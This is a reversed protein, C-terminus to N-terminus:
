SNSPKYKIAEKEFAEKKNLDKKSFSVPNYKEQLTNEVLKSQPSSEFGIPTGGISEQARGLQMIDIKSPADFHEVSDGGTLYKPGEQNGESSNYKFPDDEKSAEVMPDTRKEFGSFSFVEQELNGIPIEKQSDEKFKNEELLKAFESDDVLDRELVKKRKPKKITLDLDELKEELEEESEDEIEEKLIKEGEDFKKSKKEESDM